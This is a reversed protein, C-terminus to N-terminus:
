CFAENIAKTCIEALNVQTDKDRLTDTHCLFAIQGIMRGNEDKLLVGGGVVSSWAGIEAKIKMM